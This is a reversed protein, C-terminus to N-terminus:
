QQIKYNWKSRCLPCKNNNKIWEDICHKHFAHNCDGFIAICDIYKKDECSVCKYYLINECIGCTDTNCISTSQMIFNAELIKIPM